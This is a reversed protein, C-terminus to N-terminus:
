ITPENYFQGLDTVLVDLISQRHTPRTVIQRFSPDIDLDNKDGGAIFASNPFKAKFIFYNIAIHNILAAKKKSRPPSYFSCVIISKIRSTPAKPKLIGWYIELNGDCSKASPELKTLSFLSGM